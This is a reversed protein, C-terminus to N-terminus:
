EAATATFPKECFIPKGAPIAAKLLPVHRTNEACIKHLAFHRQRLNM